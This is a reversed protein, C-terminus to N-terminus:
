YPPLLRRFGHALVVPLFVLNRALLLFPNLSPGNSGVDAGSPEAALAAGLRRLHAPTCPWEALGNIWEAPLGDLGAEAGALAGAIAAVTDTDGGLRVAAEVAGRFDGPHALWCLLAAPVTEVVFGSVGRDARLTEGLGGAGRGAALHDRVGALRGRFDADDTLPLLRDVLAAPAFDGNGRILFAATAIMRAGDGARPDTHTVRTAATVLSQLEGEDRAVLGLLAARMAAGNGASRVGSRSPGFGLCLKGCARLTGLGVGAPLRLFWGRLKRAFAGAFREPDLGAEILAEAILVTQETDDSCLGRGLLLRHRMPGADRFRAARRPGLGEFPLGIADGLATGLLCGQIRQEHNITGSM